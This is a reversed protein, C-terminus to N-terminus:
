EHSPYLTLCIAYSNYPKQLICYLCFRNAYPLPSSGHNFFVKLHVTYLVCEYSTLNRRIKVGHEDYASSMCTWTCKLYPGCRGYPLRNLRYGFTLTRQSANIDLVLYALFILLSLLLLSMTTPFTTACKHRVSTIHFFVNATLCVEM